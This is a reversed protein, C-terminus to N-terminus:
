EMIHNMGQDIIKKVNKSELKQQNISADFITKGSLNKNFIYQPIIDMEYHNLVNNKM